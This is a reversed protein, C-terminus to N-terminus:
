KRDFRYDVPTATPIQFGEVDGIGVSALDTVLARLMNRHASVLVREGQRIHPFNQEEWFTM